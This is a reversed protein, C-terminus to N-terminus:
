GGLLIYVTSGKYLVSDFQTSGSIHLENGYIYMQDEEDEPKAEASETLLLDFVTNKKLRLFTIWGDM